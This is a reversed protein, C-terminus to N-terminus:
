REQIHLVKKVPKKLTDAPPPPAPPKGVGVDVQRGGRGFSSSTLTSLDVVVIAGTSLQITIKGKLTGVPPAAGTAYNLLWFLTEGGFGCVDATPKFTTFELLGNTRVSPTTVVREAKFDRGNYTGTGDLNIFWGDTKGTELTPSITTSQNTLTATTLATTCDPDIDKGHGATSYCPDKVGYLAMQNDASDIGETNNKYYYRGTGFYLWLVPKSTGTSKDADDYLKDISATVPGVDDIVKSLVWNEPNLDEKTTLRLLGGDTWTTVGLLSTKPKVYGVYVVDTSYFGLSFRNGKDTDLANSALSGGFANSIQSGDSLTDIIWYNSNEVFPPTANMDIVFLKLPRDSKAYFQHSATDIPGTPGSAVVVFWKGNKSPDAGSANNGNIRVIAPDSTTYGLDPHSFEWKLSPNSPDTVDLAFVSSLGLRRFGLVDIPAKVCDTCTAAAGRSAGGLGMNGILVTRWSTNNLNLANSGTVESKRECNWYDSTCGSPTAISADVLLTTNDVYYLHTYNPDTLYKLFPLANQPIFAWAETGLGSGTLEAKNSGSTLPSVKGLTIAHLAGDNAGVFVMGRNGYNSSSIYTKYTDDGYDIHYGSLPRDSAIKPTSTVVDGLKWVGVGTAPNATTIGAYGSVTRKRFGTIDYGYVYKMYNVATADDAAQLYDKLDTWYSSTLASFKDNTLSFLAGGKNIYMTRYPTATLDRKYLEVGAKWLAKLNDPDTQDIFTYNGLGDDKYRKVVTKGATNDFIFDIRYDNVLNLIKDDSAGNDERITSNAIYPDFYYWYNQLDGIWTRKQENGSADAGFDKNTYFIATILNAGSQGRNSVISAATGSSAGAAVATLASALNAQLSAPDSAQYLTTGGNTATKSLQDYPNCLNGTSGGAGAYVAYTKITQATECTYSSGTPAPCVKTPDFINRHHAYYSLDHLYPSGKYNGCITAEGTTGPDRFRNSADTVKATM